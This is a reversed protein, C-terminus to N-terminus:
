DIWGGGAVDQGRYFVFAQGPTIAHQPLDFVARVKRSSIPIIRCPSKKHNYRIKAFARFPRCPNEMGTWSIGAAVLERSRADEASGLVVENKGADLRVVYLPKGAAIGLGERQGVTYFAVGKHGGLHKGSVDVVAGPSIGKCRRGLFKRYDGGKLFCIDQSERRSASLELGSKSAIDRVEEKTYGGLPFLLRSLQCQKLDFLFYSQDKRKDSGERICCRGNEFRRLRAYHGTALSSAGLSRAMELLVGFKIRNNCVICPNPTRGRMYESCFYDVVDRKFVKRLDVVSHRIGIASATKRADSVSCTDWLKMTIGTVDYGQRKLLFAAVSSDVGGSMAVVIKKM